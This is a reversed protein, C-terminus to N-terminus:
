KACNLQYHLNRQLPRVNECCAVGIDFRDAKSAGKFRKHHRLVTVCSLFSLQKQHPVGFRVPCCALSGTGTSAQCYFRPKNDAGCLPADM